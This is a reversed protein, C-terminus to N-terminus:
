NSISYWYFIFSDFAAVSILICLIAHFIKWIRFDWNILICNRGTGKHQKTAIWENIWQRTCEYRGRWGGTRHMGLGGGRVTRPGSRIIIWGVWGKGKERCQGTWELVIIIKPSFFFLNCLNNLYYILIFWKWLFFISM